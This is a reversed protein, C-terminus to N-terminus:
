PTPNYATLGSSVFAIVLRGDAFVPESFVKGTGIRRLVAGTQENLLYVGNAAGSSNDYTPVALV